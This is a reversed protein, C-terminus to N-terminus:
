HPPFSPCYNFLAVLALFHSMVDKQLFAFEEYEDHEIDNKPGRQIRDYFGQEETAGRENCSTAMDLCTASEHESRSDLIKDKLVLLKSGRSKSTKVTVEEDCKSARTGDFKNKITTNQTKPEQLRLPLEITPTM